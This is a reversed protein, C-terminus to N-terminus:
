KSKGTSDQTSGPVVVMGENLADIRNLAVKEGAKLGTKLIYNNDSKGAIEIPKMTIKNSDALTFVFYKNQIDKVSSMPVTLSSPLTKKLIIKGSGGSRLLKDPNPFVAKLPISGTTRDINGSAIELKGKHDYLTGDAIILEVTNIGEDAKRDKVFSIFDAESLSFYVFVHSIESLTTLPTIDAPTVLNGIRNPIRGIYGSVPAKILSFAANIESSGLAARAQAVQAQASAYNAEATQLQLQSVVKGAVLPKIKELEIRANEEAALAAKLSAQSNNVQQNYVDGKIRFLSQGKQVFDGESVYIQDLYGTVQAKIDVNVSGEISGPYKKEVHATAPQVELFDVDTPPAQTQQENNGCALLLVSLSTFLILKRTKSQQALLQM